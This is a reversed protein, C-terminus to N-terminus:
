PYTVNVVFSGNAAGVSDAGDGTLTAGILLTGGSGASPSYTSSCGNSGGGAYDCTFASLAYGTGSVVTDILIDITGLSQATVTVEAAQVTGTLYRNSTDTLGSNTAITLVEANALDTSIRGFALTKVEVLSIPTVFEVDASVSETAAYSTMGFSLLVLVLISSCISKKLFNMETDGKHLYPKPNINNAEFAGCVV